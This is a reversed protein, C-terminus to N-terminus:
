IKARSELRENERDAHFGVFHWPGDNFSEAEWRGIPDYFEFESENEHVVGHDPANTCTDAIAVRNEALGDPEQGLRNPHFITRASGAEPVRHCGAFSHAIRPKRNVSNSLRSVGICTNAFQEPELEFQEIHAPHSTKHPDIGLNFLQRLSQSTGLAHHLEADIGDTNLRCSPPNQKPNQLFWSL